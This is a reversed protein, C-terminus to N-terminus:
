RSVFRLAGEDLSSLAELFYFFPFDYKRTIAEINTKEDIIDEAVDPDQGLLSEEVVINYFREVRGFVKPIRLIIKEM